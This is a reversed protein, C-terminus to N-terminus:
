AYRVLQTTGVIKGDKRVVGESDTDPTYVNKFGMQVLEPAVLTSVFIAAEGRKTEDKVRDRESSAVTFIPRGLDRPAITRCVFPSNVRISPQSELRITFGSTPITKLVTKHDRDYIVIEHPTANYLKM